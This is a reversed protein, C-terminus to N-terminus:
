KCFFQLFFTRLACKLAFFIHSKKEKNQPEPSCSVPCIEQHLQQHQHQYRLFQVVFWWSIPHFSDECSEQGFFEGGLWILSKSHKKQGATITQLIVVCSSSLTATASKATEALCSFCLAKCDKSAQLFLNNISTNFNYITHLAYLTCQAYQSCWQVIRVSHGRHAILDLTHEIWNM